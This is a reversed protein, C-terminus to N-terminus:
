IRAKLKKYKEVELSFREKIELSDTNSIISQFRAIEVDLWELFVKSGRLNDRGFCYEDDTYVDAGVEAVIVWYFKTDKIMYDHNLRYGHAVLYRRVLDVDSQPSLIFKDILYPTNSLIKVIERGGMGAIVVTDVEGESIVSLGDGCRFEVQNLYKSNEFLNRAKELSMESVDTAIVHEVGKKLAEHSLLGHDCGVDAIRKSGLVHKLLENLRKTLM